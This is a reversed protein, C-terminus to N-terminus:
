WVKTQREGTLRDWTLNTKICASSIQLISCFNRGGSSMPYICWYRCNVRFHMLFFLKKIPKHASIYYLLYLVIKTTYNLHHMYLKSFIREDNRYIQFLQINETYKFNKISFHPILFHTAFLHSNGVQKSIVFWTVALSAWYITFKCFFIKSELHSCPYKIQM